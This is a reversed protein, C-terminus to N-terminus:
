VSTCPAGRKGILSGTANFDATLWDPTAPAATAALSDLGLIDGGVSNQEAHIGIHRNTGRDVKRDRKGGIHDACFGIHLYITASTHHAAKFIAAPASDAHHNVFVSKLALLNARYTARYNLYSFHGRRTPRSFLVSPCCKPATRDASRHANLRGFAKLRLVAFARDAHDQRIGLGNEAGPQALDESEFVVNPNYPWASLRSCVTEAMWFNEASVNHNEFRGKRESDASATESM